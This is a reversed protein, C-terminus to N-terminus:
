HASLRSADRTMEASTMEADRVANEPRADSKRRRKM